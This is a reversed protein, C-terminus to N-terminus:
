RTSHHTVYRCAALVVVSAYKPKNMLVVASRVPCVEGEGGAGSGDGGGDTGGIRETPAGGPARATGGGVCRWVSVAGRSVLFIRSGNGGGRPSRQVCADAAARCSGEELGPHSTEPGQLQQQQEAQFSSSSFSSPESADAISVRISARLQKLAAVNKALCAAKCVYVFM